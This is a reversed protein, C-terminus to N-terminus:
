NTEIFFLIVQFYQSFEILAIGAENKTDAQLVQFVTFGALIRHHLDKFFQYFAEQLVFYGM